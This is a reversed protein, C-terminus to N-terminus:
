IEVSLSSQYKNYTIISNPSLAMYKNSFPDCNGTM